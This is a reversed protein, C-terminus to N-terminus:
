WVFNNDVKKGGTRWTDINPYRVSIYRSIFTNENKKEIHVLHAEYSVCSAHAGAFHEKRDAVFLYCSRKHYAWGKDCVPVSVHSKLM